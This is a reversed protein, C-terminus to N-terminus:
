INIQSKLLADKHKKSKNHIYRAYPKIYSECGPIDCKVKDQSKVYQKMYNNMYEPDDTKNQKKTQKIFIESM